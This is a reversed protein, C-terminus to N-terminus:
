VLPWLKFVMKLLVKKFIKSVKRLYKEFIKLQSPLVMGNENSGYFVVMLFHEEDQGTSRVDSVVLAQFLSRKPM